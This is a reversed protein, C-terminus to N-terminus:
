STTFGDAQLSFRLRVREDDSADERLLPALTGSPTVVGFGLTDVRKHEDMPIATVVGVVKGDRGIVPGGSSGGRIRATILMLTQREALAREFGIIEGSSSQLFGAIEATEAIQVSDFGLIPPYGMALIEDLIAGEGLRFSSVGPFPDGDFELVALDIRENPSVWIARLPADAARWGGITVSHMQAICHRATAVRHSDLLFASGVDQRDHTEVYVPRVSDQFHHRIEPFGFAVFDPTGYALDDATVAGSSIYAAHWWFPGGRAASALDVGMSLLYGERELKQAIAGLGMSVTGSTISGIFQNMTRPTVPVNAEPPMGSPAAALTQGRANEIAFFKMLDVGIGM